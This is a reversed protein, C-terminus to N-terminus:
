SCFRALEKCHIHLNAIPTQQQDLAMYPVRRGRKDTRWTYTFSSVDFLCSENIFGAGPPPGIQHRSKSFRYWPLKAPQFNRPDPGGLYQGIAAADFVLGLQSAHRSFLSPHETGMGLKNMLLGSYLPPLVPLADLAHPGLRKRADALLTMDNMGSHSTDRVAEVIFQCLTALARPDRSFLISPVCRDDNDFPAALGEYLGELKSVVEDAEAYLMVDNELHIVNKLALRDVLASLFYFRETTHTWFGNRFSKNFRCTKRFQRHLPAIELDECAIRTVKPMKVSSFEELAPREALLYIPGASFRAAQWIADATYLPIVPGLHIFVICPPM